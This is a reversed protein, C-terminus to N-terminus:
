GSRRKSNILELKDKRTLKKLAAERKRAAGYDRCKEKYQLKVPKRGRTYKCQNTTNHDKIRKEVDKASGVYLTKDRCEVVYVFWNYHM